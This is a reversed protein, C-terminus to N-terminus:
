MCIPVSGTGTLDANFDFLVEQNSRHKDLRYKFANVSEEHFKEISVIHLNCFKITLLEVENERATLYGVSTISKNFSIAWAGFQL